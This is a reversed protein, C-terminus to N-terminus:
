SMTEIRSGSKFEKRMMRWGSQGLRSATVTVTAGTADQAGTLDYTADLYEPKFTGEVGVIRRGPGLRHNVLPHDLVWKRAFRRADRGQYNTFSRSAFAFLAGASLIGIAVQAYYRSKESKVFEFPKYRYSAPHGASTGVVELINGGNEPVIFVSDIVWAFADLVEDEEEEPVDFGMRARVGDWKNRFWKGVAAKFEWPREWYFSLNRVRAEEEIDIDQEVEKNV